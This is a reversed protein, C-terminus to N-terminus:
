VDAANKTEGADGFTIFFDWRSLGTLCPRIFPTSTASSAVSVVGGEETWHIHTDARACPRPM